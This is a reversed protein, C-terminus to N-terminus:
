LAELAFRVARRAAETRIADRSGSLALAEVRTGLPTSVGIYVTGVPQGDPSDPGAIGTTSLGVDCSNDADGLANRAGEAMQRAVEPHVPGHTELLATDVGLM